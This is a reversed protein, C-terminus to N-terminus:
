VHSKSKARYAKKEVTPTVWIARALTEDLTHERGSAVRVRLPGDFPERSLVDVTADPILGLKSFHKLHEPNQDSVRQIVASQGAGVDLLSQYEPREVTGAKTPIPDGHPDREPDGLFNAIRDELDESIVHEIKEAEAHVLEWPVDLAEALFLEILRHHRLVELAMKEGATTLEVGHYPSHRVLKLRALKKIMNTASAASIDLHQALATTTVTESNEQLQYIAKLYNQVSASTM